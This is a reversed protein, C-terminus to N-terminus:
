RTFLANKEMYRTAFTGAFDMLTTFIGFCLEAIQDADVSTQASPAVKWLTHTILTDVLDDAIEFRFLRADDAITMFHAIHGRRRSRHNLAAQIIRHDYHFTIKHRVLAVYKVFERERTGGKAFTLLKVFYEPIPRPCDDVIERLNPCDHIEHIIDLAEKLHALQLRVFYLSTGRRVSRTRESTDERCRGLAQNAAALDNCAMMLQLVLAGEDGLRQIKGLDVLLTRVRAMKEM